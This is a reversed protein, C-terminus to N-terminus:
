GELGPLRNAGFAAILEAETMRRNPNSPQADAVRASEVKAASKAPAPKGRNITIGLLALVCCDPRRVIVPGEIESAQPNPILV